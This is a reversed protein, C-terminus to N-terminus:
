ADAEDADTDTAGDRAAHLADRGLTLANKGKRKSELAMQDAKEVLEDATAGDWPFTALGASITLTPMDHQALAPFKLDVIQKQFRRAIKLVDGPHTSGETRADGKDWFIVAFEDGGIRSVVDHDRVVSEMLKATERLVEDGCAHGIRDNFTKFDDVDFVMVSVQSREAAARALVTNLFRTFYRRNWVGTLEDHMALHQLRRTQLELTMWPAAWQAWPQLTEATADATTTTLWGLSIGSQRIETRATADAPLAEGSAHIGVGELGSQQAILQTALTTCGEGEALTGLSLLSQVLDTDGLAEVSDTQDPQRAPAEDHGHATLPRPHPHETAAAGDDDAEAAPLPAPLHDPVPHLDQNIFGDDHEQDAPDDAAAPSPAPEADTTRFGLRHLLAEAPEAEPVVEEFGASLISEVAEVPTDATVTVVKRLGPNIDDLVRLTAAEERILCRAPLVVGSLPRDSGGAEALAALLGPSHRISVSGRGADSLRAAADPNDVVLVRPLAPSTAPPVPADSGNQLHLDTSPASTM